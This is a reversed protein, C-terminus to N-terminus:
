MKFRASHQTVKALLASINGPGIGPPSTTLQSLKRSMPAFMQQPNAILIRQSIFTNVSTVNLAFARSTVVLPLQLQPLSSSPV